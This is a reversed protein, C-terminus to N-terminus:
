EPVVPTIVTAGDVSRWTSTKLINQAVYVKNDTTNYVEKYKYKGRADDAAQIAAADNTSGDGKAGFDKVSFLDDAKSAVIRGVGGDRLTGLGENLSLQTTTM